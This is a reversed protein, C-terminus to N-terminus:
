VTKLDATPYQRVLTRRKSMKKRFSTIVISAIAPFPQQSTHHGGEAVAFVDVVKSM